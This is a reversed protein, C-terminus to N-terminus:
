RSWGQAATAFKVQDGWSGLTPSRTVKVSVDVLLGVAQVQTMSFVWYVTWFGVTVKVVGPVFIAKRIADFAAPGDAAFSTWILTVSGGTVTVGVGSTGITASKVISWSEPVAGSVTWNAEVDVPGYM